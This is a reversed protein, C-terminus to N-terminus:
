TRMSTNIAKPYSTNTRSLSEQVILHFSIDYLKIKTILILNNCIFIRKLKFYFKYLKPVKKRYMQKLNKNLPIKKYYKRFTFLIM